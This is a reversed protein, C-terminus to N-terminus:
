LAGEREEMERFGDAVLLGRLFAATNVLREVRRRAKPSTRRLAMLTAYLARFIRNSDQPSLNM